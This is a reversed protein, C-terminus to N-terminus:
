IVYHSIQINVYQLIDYVHEQIYIDARTVIRVKQNFQTYEEYKPSKNHLLFSKMGM